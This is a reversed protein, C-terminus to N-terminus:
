MLAKEAAGIADEIIELGKAATDFDMVIPPSM